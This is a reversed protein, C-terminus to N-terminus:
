SLFPNDIEIYQVEVDSVGTYLVAKAGDLVIGASFLVDRLDERKSPGDLFERREAIIKMDTYERTEPNVVFVMPYYHRVTGESYKAIHGLVGIRGDELLTLENSGGWELDDFQELLAADEIVGPSLEDLSDIMTFGIKGRGGKEGQPRSFIAVKGNPLGILRIDKMGNPGVTLEKLDELNTGYYFKARWWLADANDPHPFIETGGFVYYEGVKNIYPDQLEYEPFREDVEYKDEAVKKFFVAKSYESDRREVRAIMLTEGGYSFPATPNYVDNGEVGVYIIRKSNIGCKQARHMELLRDVYQVRRM